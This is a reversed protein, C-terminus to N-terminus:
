GQMLGRNYEELKKFVFKEMKERFIGNEFKEAYKRIREPEFKMKLFKKVAGVLAEKTQEHFFIGTKGNVVSELAGGAAYAIVPRGSAQVELPVIGFDELGPFILGRCKSFYEPIEKDTDPRNDM